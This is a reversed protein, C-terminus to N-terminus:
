FLVGGNLQRAKTSIKHDNYPRVYYPLNLSSTIFDKILDLFPENDRDFVSLQFKQPPNNLNEVIENPFEKQIQLLNYGSILDPHFLFSLRSSIYEFLGSDKNQRHNKLAEQFESFGPYNDFILVSIHYIM